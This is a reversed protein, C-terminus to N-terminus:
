WWGWVPGFVDAVECVRDQRREQRGRVPCPQAGLWRCVCVVPGTFDEWADRDADRWVPFVVDPGADLDARDVVLVVRGVALTAQEGRAVQRGVGEHRRVKSEHVSLCPDLLGFPFVSASGATGAATLISTAAAAATVVLSFCLLCLYSAPVRRRVVQVHVAGVRERQGDVGRVFAVLGSEHIVVAPDGRGGISVSVGCIARPFRFASDFAPVFVVPVVFVFVFAFVFTFTGVCNWVGLEPVDPELERAVEIQVEIQFQVSGVVVVVLLSLPFGVPHAAHGHEDHRGAPRPLPATADSASLFDQHTVALPKPRMTAADHIPM